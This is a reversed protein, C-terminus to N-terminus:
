LKDFLVASWVSIDSASQGSQKKAAAAAVLMCVVLLKKQSM